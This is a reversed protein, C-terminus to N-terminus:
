VRRAVRLVTIDDNQGFQQAMEAVDKATAGASLVSEIRAFGLLGQKDNHAEAVGDTMLVIVEDIALSLSVQEYAMDQVLGLPLSGALKIETGNRYPPLHGASSVTLVGQEDLRVILCTTFGGQMRGCLFRNLERLIEAPEETYGTLTRLTGVIMSVIMAARLGKGSVDGIVLLTRGTRLPIVQFFDGGVQTAPHYISDIAYGDIEPIDQPVMVSQVERAASIETELMAKEAKARGHRRGESVSVYVLGAYGLCISVIITVGDLVLRRELHATELANLQHPRQGQPFVHGLWFMLTFHLAFLPLSAMWFRRRLFIGSSAYFVAFVGSLLVGVAFRAPSQIGMDTVDSAFGLGSFILFVALLFIFVSTRPFTHWRNAAEM